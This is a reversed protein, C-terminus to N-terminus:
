MGGYESETNDTLYTSELNVRAYECHRLIRDGPKLLIERTPSAPALRSM